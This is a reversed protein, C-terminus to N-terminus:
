VFDEPYVVLLLADNNRVQIRFQALSTCKAVSREPRDNLFMTKKNFLNSNGIHLWQMTVITRSVFASSFKKKKFIADTQKPLLNAM